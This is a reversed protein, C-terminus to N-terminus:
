PNKAENAEKSTRHHRRRVRRGYRIGEICTLIVAIVTIGVRVLIIAATCGLVFAAGAWFVNIFLSKKVEEGGGRQPPAATKM